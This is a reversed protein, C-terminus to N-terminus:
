TTDKKNFPGSFRISAQKEIEKMWDEFFSRQLTAMQEEGEKKDQDPTGSKLKKWSGLKLYYYKDQYLLLRKAVKSQPTLQYITEWMTESGGIDPISNKELTFAPTKKLKIKKIQLDSDIPEGRSLKAEWDKKLNDIFASKSKQDAFERALQNKLDSFEPVQPEKKEVLQVLYFGGPAEFVSSVQQPNLSSLATVFPSPLDEASIWPRVGGKKSYEDDSEKKAVEEFNSANIQQSLSLAKKQSKDRQEDSAQFPLGVRIQKFLYQTPGTLSPKKVEYLKKLETEDKLADEVEQSSAKVARALENFDIAAYELSLQTNKFASMLADFGPSKKIRGTLYSQLRSAGMQQRQKKEEIGRNPLQSYLAYDFKGDKQFYPSKKIQDALELDSVFFGMKEAQQALLKFQIMRELTRQPIQFTEILKEDFKNGLVARYQSVTFELERSFDRQPIVEGNVWAVPQNPLTNDGTNSFGFFAMVAVVAMIIFASVWHEKKKRLLDLM